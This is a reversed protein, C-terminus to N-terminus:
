RETTLGGARFAAPQHREPGWCTREGRLPLVGLKQKGELQVQYPPLSAQTRKCGAIGRTHWLVPSRRMQTPRENFAKKATVPLLLGLVGAPSLAVKHGEM